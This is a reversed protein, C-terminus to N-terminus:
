DPARARHKRKARQLHEGWLERLERIESEDLSQWRRFLVEVREESATERRDAPRGASPDDDRVTEIVAALNGAIRFTFSGFTANVSLEQFLGCGNETSYACSCPLPIAIFALSSVTETTTV